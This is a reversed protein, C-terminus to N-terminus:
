VFTLSEQTMDLLKWAELVKLIGEAKKERTDTYTHHLFSSDTNMNLKVM